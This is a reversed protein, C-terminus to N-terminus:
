TPILHRRGALLQPRISINGQGSSLTWSSDATLDGQWAGREPEGLGVHVRDTKRQLLWRPCTETGSVAVVDMGPKMVTTGRQPGALVRHIRWACLVWSVQFRFARASADKNAGDEDKAGNRCCQPHHTRM